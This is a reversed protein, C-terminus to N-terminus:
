PEEGSAILARMPVVPMELTKSLGPHYERQYRKQEIQKEMDKMVASITLLTVTGLVVKEAMTVRRPPLAISYDRSTVAHRALDYAM